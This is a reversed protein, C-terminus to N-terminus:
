RMVGMLAGGVPETVVVSKASDGVDLDGGGAAGRRPGRVAPLHVGLAVQGAAPPSPDRHQDGRWSTGRDQFAQAVAASRRPATLQRHAGRPLAADARQIARTVDRRPRPSSRSLM